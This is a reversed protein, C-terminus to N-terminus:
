MEWPKVAKAEEFMLKYSEHRSRSIKGAEVAEIVACGKEKIHRCDTFRCEGFYEGFETFCGSLEEPAIYAYQITDFSSFGPTDAIYGGCLKYLRSVRTTHRGRGLKRSIHATELELEPAIFNLLTSKGVGTNGTFACVKGKVTDTIRDVSSRDSYDVVIVDIGINGYIVPIDENVALDNKTLVIMPKIGKYECVAIFKDLLTLSPHPQCTSVVFFLVDLNALPPRIISNRREEIGTIVNDEVTCIDGAFPTVEKNRFVGRAKCSIIGEDTEVSYVGGLCDLILGRM